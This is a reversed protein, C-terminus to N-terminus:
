TKNQIEMFNELDEDVLFRLQLDGFQIKDGPVPIDKFPTPQEAVGLTMEPINAQNIARIDELDEASYPKQLIELHYM